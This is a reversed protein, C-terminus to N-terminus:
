PDRSNYDGTAGVVASLGGKEPLVLDVLEAAPVATLVELAQPPNHGLTLVALLLLQKMLLDAERAHLLVEATFTGTPTPPARVLGTTSLLPAKHCLPTRPSQHAPPLSGQLAQSRLPQQLLGDQQQLEGGTGAPGAMGELDKCAAPRPWLHDVGQLLNKKAGSLHAIALGRRAVM